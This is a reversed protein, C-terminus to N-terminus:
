HVGGYDREQGHRAFQHHEAGRGARQGFRGRRQGGCVCLDHSSATVLPQSDRVAADFSGCQNMIRRATVGVTTPYLVNTVSHPRAQSMQSLTVAANTELYENSIYPGLVLDILQVYLSSESAVGRFSAGPSSGSPLEPLQNITGSEKGSGM